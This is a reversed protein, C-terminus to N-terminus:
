PEDCVEKVRIFLKRFENEASGNSSKEERDIFSNACNWWGFMMTEVIAFKYPNESEYEQDFKRQLREPDGNKKQSNKNVETWIKLLSEGGAILPEAYKTKCSHAGDYERLAHPNMYAKQTIRSLKYIQAMEDLKERRLAEWYPTKVIELAKLAASKQKYENDLNSISLGYIDEYKWVMSDYGMQFESGQVLKLTNRLQIETYRKSNYGATIQCIGTDYRFTKTQSNATVVLFLLVVPLTKLKIM